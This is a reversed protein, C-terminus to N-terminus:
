DLGIGRGIHDSVVQVFDLMEFASTFELRVLHHGNVTMDSLPGLGGERPPPRTFHVRRRVTRTLNRPIPRPEGASASFARLRTLDWRIDKCVVAVIVGARRM